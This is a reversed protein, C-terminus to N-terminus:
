LGAKEPARFGVERMATLDALEKNCAKEFSVGSRAWCMQQYAEDQLTKITVVHANFVALPATEGKKMLFVNHDDEELYYGAEQEEKTLINEIM